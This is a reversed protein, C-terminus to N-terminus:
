HVEITQISGGGFTTMTDAAITLGLELFRRNIGPIGYTYFLVDKTEEQVRTKEDAGQCLVCVIDKEDRFVIEGEATRMERSGM